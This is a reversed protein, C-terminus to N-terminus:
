TKDGKSPFGVADLADAVPRLRSGANNNANTNNNNNNEQKRPPRPRPYVDM